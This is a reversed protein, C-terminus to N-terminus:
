PLVERLRELVRRVRGHAAQEGIGAAAGSEKLTRGHIFRQVLLRQEEESVRQMSRALWAIEEPGPAWGESVQPRAAAERRRRRSERRLLDVSVSMTARVMWGGLARHTDLAPLKAAARVMVEQAVDLCFAEDRRTLGRAISYVRDFWARYLTEFAAADGRAVARTLQAVDFGGARGLPSRDSAPPEIDDMPLARLM